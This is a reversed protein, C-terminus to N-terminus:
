FRAITGNQLGAEEEPTNQRGLVANRHPYRGWQEIVQRHAVAFEVNNGLLEVLAESDPLAKAEDWLDQFRRVCLQVCVCMGMQLPVGM